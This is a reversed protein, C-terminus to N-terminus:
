RAWPPVGGTDRPTPPDERIGARHGAERVRELAERVPLGHERAIRRVEEFEPTM